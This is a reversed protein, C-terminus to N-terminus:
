NLHHLNHPLNICRGIHGYHQVNTTASRKLCTSYGRNTKVGMENMENTISMAISVILKGNAGTM